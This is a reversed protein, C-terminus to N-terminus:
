RRARKRPQRTKTTRKGARGVSKKAVAKAKRVAGGAVRARKDTSRGRRPGPGVEVGLGEDIAAQAAALRAIPVRYPSCSVYDMGVNHCFQISKPDGGHEGCIGIKLKPNAARGQEIGGKVLLGVGDQDLTQFPHDTFIGSRDPDTYEPLFRGADDRSIGMTMQTLDNTGFSFFDAVEALRNATLAARPTEIMTGVLYRLKVGSKRIIPDAVAHIREVLIQLEKADITLPIMIEPQVRVGSGVCEVAAEIIARVQMELIAPYTVCLRCGRHGLMPNIEHLQEARALIAEVSLGTHDALAYAQHQSKPVFEHLPPDLLRMTVPYGDMAHFLGIFDERQFPLLKNLATVRQERRKAIIMEQLALQREQTNFFMHETRCLGIGEAGMELAKRADEPTDANTRVKLRRCRDAWSMLTYFAEPPEPAVLTFEGSYVNGTSGDLTIYDGQRIIRGRISMRKTDYNIKLEGCGVICAKGWGRAVVAAHSTKGGTQTLIGRAAQMGGVDEPSTEKRVLVVDEGAEAMEEAENATFVVKGCAAGPVANVGHTLRRRSLEAREIDPSIVPYFLREIDRASTRRIAENKTIVPRTAAPAYKKPLYAKRVLRNAEAKTMLPQTAQEVSIRFEAAATRKGRRTQLMFLKGREFTFELDQMDGYRIELM